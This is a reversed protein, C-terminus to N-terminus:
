QVEEVMLEPAVLERLKTEVYGKLTVQSLKCTACSGCLRVIVRNGEVDVLDIDGGDKKLAPKIERDLTEEILRIKQINTLRPSKARAGPRQGM